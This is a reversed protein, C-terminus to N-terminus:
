LCRASWCLALCTPPRVLRLCSLGCSCCPQMRLFSRTSVLILLPRLPVAASAWCALSGRLRCCRAPMGSQKGTVNPINTSNLEDGIGWFLSMIILSFILKDAVRPGLFDPSRYNKTTRYQPLPTAANPANAVPVTLPASPFRTGHQQSQRNHQMGTIAVFPQGLV